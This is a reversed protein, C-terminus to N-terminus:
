LCTAHLTIMLPGRRHRLSNSNQGRLRLNPTRIGTAVSMLRLVPLSLKVALREAMPTLTVPGRLHSNYVSTGQWLLHLVSFFGRQKIAM